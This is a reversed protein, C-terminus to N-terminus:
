RVRYAHEYWDIWKNSSHDLLYDYDFHEVGEGVMELEYYGNYNNTELIQVVEVLPLKGEGLLCRNQEHVPAEEADGLQVLRISPVISPLWHVMREDHTLHYADFVIGVNPSQTEGVLDLTMPLDTLSTWKDACGVHMPEIALNVNLALAAEALERMSDKLLRNMHSITHGGRSGTLIVLCEAKLEAALEVADLGDLISERYTRGDSGTFGGAWHLSSVKLGSEQLLEIGKAEGYEQIKYRWVGIAGFGLKAYRLVDEEFGWRYTSLECVAM